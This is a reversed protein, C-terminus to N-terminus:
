RANNEEKEIQKRFPCDQCIRAERKRQQKCNKYWKSKKDINMAAALEKM